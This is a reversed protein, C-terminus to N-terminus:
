RGNIPFGVYELKKSWLEEGYETTEPYQGDIFVSIISADADALKLGDDPIYFSVISQDGHFCVDSISSVATKIGEIYAEVCAREVIDRLPDFANLDNGDILAKAVNRAATEIEKWNEGGVDYAPDATLSGETDGWQHIVHQGQKDPRM